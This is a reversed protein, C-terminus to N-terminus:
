SVWSCREGRWDLPIWKGLKKQMVYFGGEGCLEGCWGGKSVVAVTKDANFGVASLDIFAGSDPYANYFGQWGDKKILELVQDSSVLKYPTKLDFKDQLRWKKKNMRVFEHIAPGVIPKFENDPHLCISNGPDSDIYAGFNRLTEQRIILIKSKPLNGGFPLSLVASYVEYAASDNYVQPENSQGSSSTVLGFLLLLIFVQIRKM